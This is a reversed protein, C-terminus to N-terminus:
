SKLLTNCLSELRRAQGSTGALGPVTEAPVAAFAAEDVRKASLRTRGEM